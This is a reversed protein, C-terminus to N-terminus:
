TNGSCTPLPPARDLWPLPRRGLAGPATHDVPGQNKRSSRMYKSGPSEGM